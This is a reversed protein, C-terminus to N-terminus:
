QYKKFISEVTGNSMLTTLASNFRKLVDQKNIHFRFMVPVEAISNGIDFDMNHENMYYKLIDRNIFRDRICMESGM